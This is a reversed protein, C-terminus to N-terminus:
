GSIVSSCRKWCSSWRAVGERERWHVKDQGGVGDRKGGLEGGIAMVSHIFRM